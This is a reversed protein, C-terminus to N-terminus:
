SAREFHLPRHGQLARLDVGDLLWHLQTLSLELVPAQAVPWIFREAELRKQCLWFGNKHWYLLKVRNRQKNSFV